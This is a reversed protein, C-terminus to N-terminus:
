IENEDWWRLITYTGVIMVLVALVGGVLDLFETM